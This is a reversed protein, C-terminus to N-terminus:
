CVCVGKGKMEGGEGGGREGPEEYVDQQGTEMAEYMEQEIEDMEGNTNTQSYKLYDEVEQLGEPLHDPAPDEYVERYDQSPPELVPASSNPPPAPPKKLNGPTNVRPRISPHANQITKVIGNLTRTANQLQVECGPSLSENCLGDILFM